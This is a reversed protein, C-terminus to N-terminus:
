LSLVGILDGFGWVLTGVVLIRMGFFEEAWRDEEHRRTRILERMSNEGAWDRERAHGNTPRHDNLEQSVRLRHYQELIQHSTLLVGLAVVASGSRAFWNWDGTALSASIGVLFILSTLLYRRILGSLMVPVQM